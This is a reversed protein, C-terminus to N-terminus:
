FKYGFKLGGVRPRLITQTEIFQFSNTFTSANVNTLNQAFLQFNWADKAVGISADYTTFGPMDYNDITGVGSYSHATHQMGIQWFAKYDGVPIDDRVRLNAQFPPSSALSTGVPGFVNPQATVIPKGFGPSAPNNDILSPSNTQSGSNWSSSGQVTIGETVRAVLQLEVGRVRYNPGNTLFTLNGFGGQPDFFEVIANKWDEQYVAGNFELRHGLWESKWGLENNTLSDPSYIEPTDYQAVGNITQTPKTGRNFGGPRFGQSWTYYLLVDDTVHWSLNARSRFGHYTSSNQPQLSVNTGYPASGLIGIGGPKGNGNTSSTCPGYYTTPSYQECYFSGVDGGVEDENFKYYRTGLSLIVTKPVIDADISGFAAKQIITRTVDDMFGVSSNQVGPHNSATNPWSEIPNFCNDNYTPSCDPVSKYLWQTDDYIKYEEWYLGGTGRIRAAEDTSFRLEQTAHTNKETDQWTSSPTFCQGTSANASVNVCQYYTGYVGRAYNTYDQVQEVNRVLYGGNYVLKVDGIMGDVTLATSEFRDKDYSPNFLAVSDQPLPTAGVPEGLKNFTLGEPGYPMQYFVGQAYMDQYSQQLLADWQDDIKWLASLRFGQYTVPNIANQVLDNNNISVSNTPVPTGGFGEDTSYRTFTSPVNNIYGGRTDTYVVGRVALTGPILPLNIM